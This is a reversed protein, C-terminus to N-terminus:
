GSIGTFEVGEQSYAIPRQGKSGNMQVLSSLRQEGLAADFRPSSAAGVGASGVVIPVRKRAVIALLAAIPVSRDAVGFPRLVRDTLRM